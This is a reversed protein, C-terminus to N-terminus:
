DNECNQCVREGDCSSGEEGLEYWWGCSDCLFVEGDIQELEEMTLSREDIKLSECIENLSKCTGQLCEVLKTIRENM